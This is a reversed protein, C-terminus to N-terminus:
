LADLSLSGGYFTKFMADSLGATLTFFDDFKEYERLAVWQKLVPNYDVLVVNKLSALATATEQDIEM